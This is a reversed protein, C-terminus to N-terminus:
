KVYHSEISRRAVDWVWRSFAASTSPMQDFYSSEQGLSSSRSSQCTKYAVECIVLVRAMKCKFQTQCSGLNGWIRVLVETNTPNDESFLQSTPLDLVFWFLVFKFGRCLVEQHFHEKRIRPKCGRSLAAMNKRSSNVHFCLKTGMPSFHKQEQGGVQGSHRWM